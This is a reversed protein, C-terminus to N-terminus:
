SFRFTASGLFDFYRGALGSFDQQVDVMYSYAQPVLVGPGAQVQNRGTMGNVTLVGSISVSVRDLTGLAPDFPTVGIFDFQGSFSEAETTTLADAPPAVALVVLALVAIAVHRM